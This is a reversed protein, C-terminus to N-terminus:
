GYKPDPSGPKDPDGASSGGFGKRKVTTSQGLYAAASRIRAHGALKAVALRAARDLEPPVPGGGRVPSPTGTTDEFSDNLTEHRLGHGTAGQDRYTIGFKEMVYSFRRLNQKLDNAPNGMHADRAGVTAQAFEIAAKREPSDVPVWRM